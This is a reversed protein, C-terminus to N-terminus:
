KIFVKGRFVRCRHGSGGTGSVSSAVNKIGAEYDTKDKYKKM